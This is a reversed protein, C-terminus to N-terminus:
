QGTQWTRQESRTLRYLDIITIFRQYYRVDDFKWNITLWERFMSKYAIHSRSSVYLTEIIHRHFKSVVCLDILM